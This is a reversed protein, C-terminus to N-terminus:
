GPDTDPPAEQNFVAIEGAYKAMFPELDAQQVLHRRIQAEIM